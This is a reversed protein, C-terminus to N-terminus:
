NPNASEFDIARQELEDLADWVPMLLLKGKITIDGNTLQHIMGNIYERPSFPRNSKKGSFLTKCRNPVYSRFGIYWIFVTNKIAPDINRFQKAREQIKESNWRHWPRLYLCAILNNLHEENKTQVFAFYYNEAMLYQEFNANYLRFHCARALGIRKLPHVEDPQFLFEVARKMETIQDSDLIFPKKIDKHTCWWSGPTTKLENSLKIGTLFFLAKVLFETESYQQLYLRSIYQLQDATLESLKKPINIRLEM